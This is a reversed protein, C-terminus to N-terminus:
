DAGCQTLVDLPHSTATPGGLIVEAQSFLRVAEISARLQAVVDGEVRFGVVHPQFDILKLLFAGGVRLLLQEHLPAPPQPGPAPSRPQPNAANHQQTYQRIAEFYEPREFNDPILVDLRDGRDVIRYNCGQTADVIEWRHSARRVVRTDRAVHCGCQALSEVIEREIPGPALWDRDDASLTAALGPQMQFIVVEALGQRRAWSGVEHIGSPWGTCALLLRFAPRRGPSTRDASRSPRLGAM